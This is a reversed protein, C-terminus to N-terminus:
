YKAPIVVPATMNWRLRPDTKELEIKATYTIDGQQNEGLPKIYVIKGPLSTGPLADFGVQVATGVSIKSVSLETLNTTEVYWKSFDALNIVITGPDLYQGVKLNMSIVTGAMPAKLTMEELAAQAAAIQANANELRAEAIALEDPNPGKEYISLRRQIDNVKEIALELRTDAEAIESVSAKGKKWNLNALATEREKQAALLADIADMKNKAHDYFEQAKDLKNQADIYKDEALDIMVQTSRPYDLATRKKKAEDAEKRAQTLDYHLQAAILPASNKLDNIEKQANALELKAATLDVQIREQSYLRALIQGAKVQQGESVLVEKVMGSTNFGLDVFQGPVLRGQVNVENSAKVAPIVEASTAPPQASNQSRIIASALGSNTFLFGLVALIAIGLVVLSIKKM